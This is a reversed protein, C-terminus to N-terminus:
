GTAMKRRSKCRARANWVQPRGIFGKKKIKKKKNQMVGWLFPLFAKSWEVM